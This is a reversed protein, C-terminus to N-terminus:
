EFHIEMQLDIYTVKLTKEVVCRLMEAFVFGLIIVKL